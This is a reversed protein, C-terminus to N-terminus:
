RAFLIPAKDRAITFPDNPPDLKKWFDGKWGTLDEHKVGHMSADAVGSTHSGLNRITIKSKLPDSKWAPVFKLAPDDLSIKGDTVAVALSLGGVIAKALSATGLPKHANEGKAYYEYVIKDNRIVLLASTRMKILTDRLADLKETSM